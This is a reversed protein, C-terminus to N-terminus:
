VDRRGRGSARRPAVAARPASARAKVAGDIDIGAVDAKGAIRVGMAARDGTAVESAFRFNCQLNLDSFRFGVTPKLVRRSRAGFQESTDWWACRLGNIWLKSM